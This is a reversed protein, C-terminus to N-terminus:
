KKKHQSQYLKMAEELTKPEPTGVKGTSSGHSKMDTSPRSVHKAREAAALLKNGSVFRKAAKEAQKAAADLNCRYGVIQGNSVIENGEIITDFMERTNEDMANYKPIFNIMDISPKVKQAYQKEYKKSVQQFDYEVQKNFSDVWQQAELRSAFPRMKRDPDGYSVNGQSDQQRLDMVTIKRYNKEQFERAAAQAALQKTQQIIAKSYANSDVGEIDDAYGGSYDVYEDDSTGDDAEEDSEGTESNERSDDESDGAMADESDRTQNQARMAAFAEALNTPETTSSNDDQEEQQEDVEQEEVEQEEIEQNDNEYM